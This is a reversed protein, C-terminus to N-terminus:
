QFVIEVDPGYSFQNLGFVQILRHEPTEQIYIPDGVELLTRLTYLKAQLSDRRMKRLMQIISEIYLPNVGEQHYKVVLSWVERDDKYKEKLKQMIDFGDITDCITENVIETQLFVRTRMSSSFKVRKEDDM